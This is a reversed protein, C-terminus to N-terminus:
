QIVEFSFGHDHVSILNLNAKLEQILKLLLISHIVQPTYDKPQLKNQLASLIEPRIGMFKGETEFLFKFDKDDHEYTIRIKGGYPLSEAGLLVSNVLVKSWLNIDNILTTNQHCREYNDWKLDIKIPTLFDQMLKKVSLYKSSTDIGSYGYAARYFTLRRTATEASNKTLELLSQRDDATCDQLIEFGSNIAGVPTILDHCLRSCLMQAFKLDNM